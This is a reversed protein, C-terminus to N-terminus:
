AAASEDSLQMEVACLFSAAEGRCVLESYEVAGLQMLEVGVDLDEQALEDDTLSAGLGLLARLGKSWSLSQVGRMSQAYELFQATGVPGAGDLLSFPDRGSKSNSQTIEKAVKSLYQAAAAADDFFTLDIAREVSPPLVDDLAGGVLVRWDTILSPLVALVQESTVLPNVFLLLHLHPHWGNDGITVETSRVVGATMRRLAIYSKRDREKKWSEALAARVRDLTMLSNHRVTLTMMVLSGGRSVWERAGVELESERRTRILTSCTPCVWVLGCAAVGSFYAHNDMSKVAVFDGLAHGCYGVRDWSPNVGTREFV